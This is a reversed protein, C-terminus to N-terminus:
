DDSVEDNGTRGLMDQLDMTSQQIEDIVAQATAEDEDPHLFMRLEAKKEAGVSVAQLKQAWTATSDELLAYSWDYSIRYPTDQEIGYFNCLVNIGYM